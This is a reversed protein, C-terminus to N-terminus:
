NAGIPTWNEEFLKKLRYAVYDPDSVYVNRPGSPEYAYGRISPDYAQGRITPDYAYGRISPDYAQGRITPDYAQGRITPDYARASLGEADAIYLKDGSRFIIAGPGLDRAGWTKIQSAVDGKAKGPIVKFTTADIYVSDKDGINLGQQAEAIACTSILGLTVAVFVPVGYRGM